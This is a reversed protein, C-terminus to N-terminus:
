VILQFWYSRILVILHLAAGLDSMSNANVAAEANAESGSGDSKIGAPGDM